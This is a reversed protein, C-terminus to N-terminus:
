YLQHQIHTLEGLVISIKYANSECNNVKSPTSTLNQPNVFYGAEVDIYAPSINLADIHMRGNGTKLKYPGAYTTGCNSWQLDTIIETKYPYNGEYTKGTESINKSDILTDGSVTFTLGAWSNSSAWTRLQFIKRERVQGNVYKVTLSGRVKHVITKSDTITEWIYGGDKNTVSLTGNVVVIDGTAKVEVTYDIFNITFIAGEQNYATGNTLQFKIEGSRKRYGCPTQDGYRIKYEQNGSSNTTSDLSIVGCPLNYNGIRQNNANSGNGIKNNIIDNVDDLAGDIAASGSQDSQVVTKPTEEEPEPDQKKCASFMMTGALSFIILFTLKKM